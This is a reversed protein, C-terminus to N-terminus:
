SCWPARALHMSAEYDGDSKKTANTVKSRKKGKSAMKGGPKWVKLERPKEGSEPQEKEGTEWTSSEDLTYQDSAVVHM